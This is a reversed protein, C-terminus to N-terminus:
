RTSLCSRWPVNVAPMQGGELCLRDLLYLEQGGTVEGDEFGVDGVRREVAGDDGGLLVVHDQATTLGGHIDGGRGSALTFEFGTEVVPDKLVFDATNTTVESREVGDPNVGLTRCVGRTTLIAVDTYVM